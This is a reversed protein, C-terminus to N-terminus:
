NVILLKKSRVFDKGQAYIYYIGAPQNALNYYYTQNLTNPFPTALVQKGLQDFIRVVVEQRESTNFALQFQGNFTPNPYLTFSNQAVTVLKDASTTFFEIDDIYLNNGFDNIAKFAIRIDQKGAYDNLNISHEKWDNRSKPEWFTVSNTVSLNASNYTQLVKNFFGDCGEAVVIQLQDNFDSNKAYSTKFKLSAETAGSFDLLPSVLWDIQRRAEYNFLNIYASNNSGINYRINKIEWGIDGDENISIWNTDEFDAVEFQQRLPIFDEQGDVAFVDSIMNNELNGDDPLNVLEFTLTYVGTGLSSAEFELVITEGSKISDGTYTYNTQIDNLSLIIDFDKVAFGGNNKVSIAPIVNGDCVVKGPSTVSTIALDYSLNQPYETGTSNLLSARRPAYQLIIEMRGVQGASFINMCADDTYYLFNQYMDNSGCSIFGTPNCNGLYDKDSNPTDVVFDDVGCGGDGWVHLLGFFHGIEHTTSRGLNYQPKLNLGPAKEVSGFAQYDIVLGDTAENSKNPKDDLGPLGSPGQSEGFDPFQALGINQGALDTVWINLYMNPDWQSVASLLERDTVTINYSTKPGKKRVIGTTPQGNEDQRALVFEVNLKSAFPLFEPQTDLTDANLRQFDENLVEIQSYIQEDTINVGVGYAEDNHIVHVVVAILDPDGTEKTGFPVLKNREDIIKQAIWNEFAENGPLLRQDKSRLKEAEM